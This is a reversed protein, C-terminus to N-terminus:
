EERGRSPNQASIRGNDKDLRRGATYRPLWGANRTHRRSSRWSRGEGSIYGRSPGRRVVTSLAILTAGQVFGYDHARGRIEKGEGSVIM